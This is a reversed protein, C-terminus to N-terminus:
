SLKESFPANNVMREAVHAMVEKFEVSIVEGNHAM